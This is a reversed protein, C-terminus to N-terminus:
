ELIFSKVCYICMFVLMLLLQPFMLSIIGETLLGDATM